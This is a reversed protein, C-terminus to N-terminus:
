DSGFYKFGFHSPCFEHVESTLMTLNPFKTLLNQAGLFIAAVFVTIIIFTPYYQGEYSSFLNVFVINSEKVGHEKLVKIATQVTAGTELLYNNFPHTTLPHSWVLRISSITSPNKTAWYLTSVKCLLGIFLNTVHYLQVPQLHWMVIVHYIIVSWLTVHSDCVSRLSCISCFNFIIYWMIIVHYIAGYFWMIIVM